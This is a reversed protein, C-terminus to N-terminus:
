RKMSKDFTKENTAPTMDIRSHDHAKQSTQANEFGKSEKDKTKKPSSIPSKEKEHLSLDGNNDNTM